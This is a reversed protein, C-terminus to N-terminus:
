RVQVPRIKPVGFHFILWAVVYASGCMLLINKYTGEGQLVNGVLWFFGMSMLSALTGGFGVVSAVARKPFIDAVASYMTASWGQHAAAALAFFAAALWVNDVRPAFIVPLTCCAFLLTAAKRAWNVSWGRKLLWASLGGGGISGFATVAYIVVLPPGFNKLDLHFQKSFFDPLWFGYFWWVPGVLVCTGYYAWAERYRLLKLWPIKEEAAPTVGSHIHALEASGVRKSKEPPDYFGLWFALWVLDACALTIFAAQWGGFVAVIFPVIIPAFIAGMNSGTNFIGTAVSREKAPFWETVVRIATPYNGSEGLGLAFRAGCFSGVSRCFAHSMAALSWFLVSFAYASKTGIWNIIPGFSIQGIAYAAQFLIAMRSYDTETWSFKQSLSPKLLGLVQRDMYNVTCAFFLLACIVWRFQGIRSAPAEAASSQAKEVPSPNM